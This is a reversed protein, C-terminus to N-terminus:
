SDSLSPTLCIDGNSKFKGDNLSLKQATDNISDVTGEASSGDKLTLRLRLGLYSDMKLISRPHM